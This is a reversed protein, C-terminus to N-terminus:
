QGKLKTVMENCLADAKPVRELIRERMAEDIDFRKVFIRCEKPMRPDYSIFDCWKRRTALLNAQIQWLYEDKITGDFGFKLHNVSNFPCKIEIIGDSDVYGDPSGGFTEDFKTFGGESVVTNHTLEYLSRAPAENENGWEAATSGDFMGFEKEAIREYAKEYIYTIATDTWETDKSRPKGMLKYINSSTFKGVRSAFWEGTRQEQSAELIFDLSDTM